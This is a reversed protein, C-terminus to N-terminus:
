PQWRKRRYTWTPDTATEPVLLEDLGLAETREDLLTCLADFESTSECQDVLLYRRRGVKAALGGPMLRRVGVVGPRTRTLQDVRDWSIRHRRLLARREVGDVTFRSAVPYDFLTSGLFIVGLCLLAIPVVGGGSSLTIGLGIVFVIVAGLGGLIVGKWSSHLTVADSSQAGITPTPM